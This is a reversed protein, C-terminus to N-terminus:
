DKKCTVKNQINKQVRVDQRDMAAASPLQESPRLEITAFINIWETDAPGVVLVGSLLM